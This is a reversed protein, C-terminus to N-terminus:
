HFVLSRLNCLDELVGALASRTAISYLAVPPVDRREVIGLRLLQGLVRSAHPASVGAIDAAARTSLEQGAGMLAGLLRGQAGPILAEIPRSLDM